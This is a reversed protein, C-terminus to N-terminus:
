DTQPKIWRGASLIALICHLWSSALFIWISLMVWFSQVLFPSGAYRYHIVMWTWLLANLSYSGVLLGRARGNMGAWSDTGRPAVGVADVVVKHSKGEEIVADKHRATSSGFLSNSLKLLGLPVEVVILVQLPYAAIDVASRGLFIRIIAAVIGLVLFSPMGRTWGLRQSSQRGFTLDLKAVGISLSFYILSYSGLLLLGNKGLSAYTIALVSLAARASVYILCISLGSRLVLRSRHTDSGGDDSWADLAM